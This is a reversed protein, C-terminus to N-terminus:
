PFNVGTTDQAPGITVTRSADLTKGKVAVTYTAPTLYRLVYAGTLTDPAATQVTDTGIIAYLTAGSDNAPTITGAISAAVDQVSAHLVPKFHVGNPRNRPGQFNFSRSVDFDVVLVTQGPTVNVPGSFNVKIGTQSGSPVTLPKSTSGDSFEYGAALTVRASDVILRMQTYEGVPILADGLLATVGDQLDLLDFDQPEDTITYRPGDEDGGGIVYVESIWVHAAAIRPDPADTLRVQLQGVTDDSGGCAFASLAAGLVALNLLRGSM